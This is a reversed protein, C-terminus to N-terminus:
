LTLNEIANQVSERSLHSYIETEKISKHRLIEKVIYLSVGKMVLHSACTHRWSHLPDETPISLKKYLRVAYSSVKSQSYQNGLSNTFLFKNEGKKQEMQRLIEIASANLHVFTERKPKNGERVRIILLKQDLLIDHWETNLLEQIRLGTLYLLKFM